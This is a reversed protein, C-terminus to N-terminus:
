STPSKEGLHQLPQAPAEGAATAANAAFQQAIRQLCATNARYNCTFSAPQAPKAENDARTHPLAAISPPLPAVPLLQQLLQGFLEVLAALLPGESRLSSFRGFAAGQKRLKKFSGNIFSVTKPLRKEM